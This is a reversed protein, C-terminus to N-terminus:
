TKILEYNIVIEIPDGAGVPVRRDGRMEYIAPIYELPRDPSLCALIAGASAPKTLGTFDTIVDSQTIGKPLHSYIKDIITKCEQWDFEDNLVEILINKDPAAHTERFNQALELSSTTAILWCHALTPQHYTYAKTLTDPQSVLFILGKRTQPNPRGTIVLQERRLLRLISSLLIAAGILVAMTLLLIKFHALPFDGLWDKLLDYVSNGAAALALSGIVFLPFVRPDFFLKLVDRVRHSRM